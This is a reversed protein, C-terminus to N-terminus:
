TNEPAITKFGYTEYRYDLKGNRLSVVTFGEPTGMRTGHWWNGCVAGSTIYPIGHYKVVENIHTHGQLVALTNHKELLPLVEYANAVSLQPHNSKPTTGSGSPVPSEYSLFATVLPVHATVVIPTNTPLKALDASLWDIQPQDIRAEWNRDPTPQVTDLVVFHYGKHDFSYYTPGLREIFLQKGYGPTTPEQGSRLFLGFQDHNGITHHVKLGLAQQTQEYLDFLSDARKRDVGLADFVHDGGQICFDAHLTAAKRFAMDCGKAADLEPELHTDTLFLFDFSAPSEPHSADALALGGPLAAAAALGAAKAAISLFQRRDFAPRSPTSSEMRAHYCSM